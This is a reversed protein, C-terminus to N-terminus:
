IYMHIPVDNKNNTISDELLIDVHEKLITVPLSKYYSYLQKYKLKIINDEENTLLLNNIRSLIIKIKTKIARMGGNKNTERIIYEIADQSFSIDTTNFNFKDLLYTVIHKNTIELKEKYNYDDVNIKILRDALIKDIKNPDNYTFVFIIKSLDFEIGSFYKDSNYKNNTTSDTLHILTGIIEKGHHTEGLKDLEDLLCIYNMSKTDILNNIIAGSGSGVYTFGHGTLSSVDSEGGLSIMKFPRGLAEAISHCIQTNHTVIFNGLVFRENGDIMFGYYNDEPLEEVKIGSVLVDKIQRRPNAKKRPCLVPINEVGKGSICIRWAEGRKKIGKHTWSTQKKNKYCAFGLSRCLYIIDDIIQEHELSQSFEYGTKNKDLNGDSDLLGALLKLRNERSNCKYIHPIHKNKILNYKKLTNLFNNSDTKNSGDGNIRYRYETNQYQLYCKYQQLNTKIYHIITSDQNTIGTGDSDGDGLWFGIMYPDFDLEKEEFEISVSYGKLYKKMSKSLKLYKKMPIECIKEEKLDNLFRKAEELIVNTDKKNYYFDKKNIKIDKHNFWNVRFRKSKKDNIICKSNSYKLCLIHESNVIYSEGKVNTVKYMTDRGTGLTLVTRQTSDDGMLIEGVQIDQVMKITGDFMLIPTDKYFCKGVGANGCLGIANINVDPNRIMQTVINIIQDKPKELFSLKNDLTDRVTKIYHNIDNIDSNITIGSDNYIGFPVSLLSDMWSKYKAYESTDTDEYTEMIELKKYAIVKNEFSMPSKLIKMRYSDSKNLSTKLIKEELALLEPDDNNSINANLFKLTSNYNPTLIESNRFSYLKELLKQKQDMNVNMKLIDIINPSNNKYNDQIGRLEMSMEEIQDKTFNDKIYKKREDIPEREFFEGEYVSYVLDNFQTYIDDSEETDEFNDDKLKKFIKKISKKFINQLNELDNKVEEPIEEVEEELSEEVEELSEEVEELSEEVEEELSEEYLEDTSDDDDNDIKRKKTKLNIENSDDGDRKQSRTWVM